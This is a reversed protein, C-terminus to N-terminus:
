GLTIVLTIRIIIYFGRLVIQPPLVNRGSALKAPSPLFSELKACHRKAL